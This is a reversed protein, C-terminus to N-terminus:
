QQQQQQQQELQQEDTLAPSGTAEVKPQNDSVSPDRNEM